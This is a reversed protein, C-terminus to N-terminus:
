FAKLERGIKGHEISNNLVRKLWDSVGKYGM